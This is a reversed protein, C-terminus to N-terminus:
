RFLQTKEPLKSFEKQGVVKSFLCSKRKPIEFFGSNANFPALWFLSDSSGGLSYNVLSEFVRQELGNFLKTSAFMVFDRIDSLPRDLQGIKAVLDAM